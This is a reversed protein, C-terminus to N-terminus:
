VNWESKRRILLMTIDDFQEAKAIHTHVARDIRNLLASASPVPHQLLQIIREDSFFVDHVDQADPLGDTFTFLIDGPELTLEQITYPIGPFAGLVLEETELCTKIEGSVSVVYPPNHGCNVFKVVGSAPSFVGAFVTAFMGSDGQNEGVFNNTLAIPLRRSDPIDDATHPPQYNISFTRLLTRIVAAYMAPGVGKDCVDAIVFFVEGTAKLPFVDYFDGAV